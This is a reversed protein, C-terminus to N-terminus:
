DTGRAGQVLSNRSGGTFRKIHSIALQDNVFGVHRPKAFYRWIFYDV